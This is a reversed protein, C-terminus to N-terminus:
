GAAEASLSPLAADVLAAAVAAHSGDARQPLGSEGRVSVLNYARENDGGSGGGGGGSASAPFGRATASKSTSTAASTAKPKQAPSSASKSKLASTDLVPTHFVPYALDAPWPSERLPWLLAAVNM